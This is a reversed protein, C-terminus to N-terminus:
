EHSTVDAACVYWAAEPAPWGPISSSTSPVRETRLPSLSTASFL